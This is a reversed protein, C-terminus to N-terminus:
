MFLEAELRQLSELRDGVLVYGGSRRPAAIAMQDRHSVVVRSAFTQDPTLILTSKGKATTLVVHEGSGGPVPCRGLYRVTADTPIRMGLRDIARRLTAPEGARGAKLLDPEYEIVYVIAAVAAHSGGVADGQVVREGQYVLAGRLFYGLGFAVLVSAALALAWGRMGSRRIKTSLLVREALAEPAAVGMADHLRAEFGASERLFATCAACETVHQRQEPTQVRPDALILKRYDFCNM